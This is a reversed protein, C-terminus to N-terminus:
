RRKYNGYLIKFYWLLFFICTGLISWLLVHFWYPSPITNEFIGKHTTRTFTISFPFADRMPDYVDGQKMFIDIYKAGYVGIYGAQM